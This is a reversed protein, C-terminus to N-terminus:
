TPRRSAPMSAISASFPHCPSSRARASSGFKATRSTLLRGTEVAELERRLQALVVSRARDGNEEDGGFGILGWSSRARASPASPYRVSGKSGDATTESMPRASPPISARCVAEVRRQLRRLGAQRAKATGEDRLGSRPPIFPAATTEAGMRTESSQRYGTLDSRPSDSSSAAIVSDPISFSRSTWARRRRAADERCAGM